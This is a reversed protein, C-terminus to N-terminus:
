QNTQAQTTAQAVPTQAPLLPAETVAVPADSLQTDLLINVENLRDINRGERMASVIAQGYLSTLDATQEFFYAAGGVETDTAISHLESAIAMTIQPVNVERAAYSMSARIQNENELAMQEASANYATNITAATNSNATNIATIANGAAPILGTAFADDVTAYTGAGPLPSPIVIITSPYVEPPVPPVIVDYAGALCYQMVTYVGNNSSTPSGGNRTLTNLAGQSQLNNVGDVVIPLQENHTTGAATGIVDCLVVTNGPGTGAGLQSEYYNIISTPVPQTLAQIQDLGYNNELTKVMPALTAIDSQFVNKVQRLSKAIAKNALAQDPPIIQKLRNYTTM